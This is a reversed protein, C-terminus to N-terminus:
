WRSQCTRNALVCVGRTIFLLGQFHGASAKTEYKSYRARIARMPLLCTGNLLGLRSADPVQNADATDEFTNENAMLFNHLEVAAKNISTIKESSGVIPRKLIRFRVATIGFTNEITRKARSLRYNFIREDEPLYRGEFPRM